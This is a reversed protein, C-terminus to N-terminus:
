TKRLRIVAVAALIGVLLVIGVPTMAPIKTLIKVNVSADAEKSLVFAKNTLTSGATGPATKADFTFTRIEGNGHSGPALPINAWVISTTGNANPTVSDPFPVANDDFSLNKPLLDTVVVVLNTEGINQVNVTFHVDQGEFVTGPTVSKTISVNETPTHSNVSARDNATVIQIPEVTGTGNTSANNIWIGEKIAIAKFTLIISAGPSLPGVNNWHIVGNTSSDPPISASDAYSLGDPLPDTVNVPNLVQEGINTINLAILVTSGNLTFEAKSNNIYKEINIGPAARVHVTADDHVTVSGDGAVFGTANANNILTNIASQNVKAQFTIIRFTGNDMAFSWTINTTGDGNATVTEGGPVANDNYALGKPLTDTVQVNQFPTQGTNTVNLAFNVIDGTNAETSKSSNVTKNLTIGPTLFHIFKNGYFFSTLTKSADTQQDGPHFEIGEVLGKGYPFYVGLERYNGAYNQTDIMVRVDDSSITDITRGSGFIFVSLPNAGDYQSPFEAQPFAILNRNIPPNHVNASVTTGPQTIESLMVTLTDFIDDMADMSIDTFIVEGGNQAFSRLTQNVDAPLQGLLPSHSDFGYAACDVVVLNYNNIISPNLNIEGETHIDYPIGMRNLTENTLGWRFAPDAAEIVLINTPQHVSFVQNSNFVQTLNTYRVTPFAAKATNFISRDSNMVLIPGGRYTDGLPTLDTFLNVNPPEIIRYITSGNRLIAHVLGFAQIVDTQHADFPIVITAASFTQTELAVVTPAGSALLIIASLGAFLYKITQKM